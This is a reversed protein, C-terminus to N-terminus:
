RQDPRRCSPQRMEATMAAMMQFRMELLRSRMKARGAIYKWVMVSNVVIVQMAGVLATLAKTVGEVDTQQLWGLLAAVAVLNTVATGAMTWFDATLWRSTEELAPEMSDTMVRMQERLVVGNDNAVKKATAM